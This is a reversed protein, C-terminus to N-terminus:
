EIHPVNCNVILYYKLNEEIFSLRRDSLIHKYKSFSREVECNTIPAYKFASIEEPSLNLELESEEETLTKGNIIKSIKSIKKLGSNKNFVYKLKEFAMQSSNGKSKKLETFVTEVSDLSDILLMDNSELKKIVVALCNFKTNIFALDCELSSSQVLKQVESIHISEEPNLEEIFSVFNNFYKVYYEIANIWLGWRTRVPEPPTPTTPFKEKFLQKRSLSKVIIKKGCSVLRNVNGYNHMIHECVNHMAHALCTLHILNPFTNCLTKGALKMYAAADTLLLLVKDYKIGEPWLVMLANNVSQVITFNNTKDLFEMNLLFKVNREAIPNLSGVIVNSVYRGACDTTEDISIWVYQGDLQKRIDVM